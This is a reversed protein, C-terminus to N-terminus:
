RDESKLCARVVHLITRRIDAALKPWAEAVAALDPFSALNEALHAPPTKTLAAGAPTQTKQSVTQLVTIRPNSEWRRRKAETMDGRALRAKETDLAKALLNNGCEQVQARTSVGAGDASLRQAESFATPTSKPTLQPTLEMRGSQVTDATSGDTGTAKACQSESNPLSLDPLKAVAESEQGRRTHTYCSMTLDIKSHRLIAQAVKPHVGAAALFSGTTHRLGHFDASRGSEDVYPINADALDAKIMNAVRSKSPMRFAKAMPLKGAFFSRLEAATEPRLPLKGQRRRKSYGAAV